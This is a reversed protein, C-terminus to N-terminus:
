GESRRPEEPGGDVLAAIAGAVVLLAVERGLVARRFAEHLDAAPTRDHLAVHRFAAPDVAHAPARVDTADADGARHRAERVLEHREHVLRRARADRRNGGSPQVARRDPRQSRDGRPGRVLLGLPARLAGLELGAVLSRPRLPPGVSITVVSFIGSAVISFISRASFPPRTSIAHSGM